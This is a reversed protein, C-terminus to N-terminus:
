ILYDGSPSPFKKMSNKGVKWGNSETLSFLGRIPVSVKANERYQGSSINNTTLNFLGRIPVSVQMQELNAKLLAKESTLNFLGRIPVSVMLSVVARM